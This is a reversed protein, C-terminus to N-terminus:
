LDAFAKRRSWKWEKRKTAFLLSRGGGEEGITDRERELYTERETEEEREASRRAMEMKVVYDRRKITREKSRM